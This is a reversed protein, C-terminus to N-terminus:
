LGPGTAAEELGSGVAADEEELGPGVAAGEELGPGVAADEEFGPGAAAEEELNLDLGFGLGATVLWTPSVVVSKGLGEVALDKAVLINTRDMMAV